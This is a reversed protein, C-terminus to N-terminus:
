PFEIHDKMKEFNKRFHDLHSAEIRFDTQDVLVKTFDDITLPMELRNFM